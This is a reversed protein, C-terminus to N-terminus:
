TACVHPPLVAVDEMNSISGLIIIRINSYGCRAVLSRGMICSLLMYSVAHLMRNVKTPSPIPTGHLCSYDRLDRM